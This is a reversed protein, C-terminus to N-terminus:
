SDSELPPGSAEGGDPLDNPAPAPPTEAKPQEWDIKLTAQLEVSWVRAREPDLNTSFGPVIIGTDRVFDEVMRLTESGGMPKCSVENIEHGSFEPLQCVVEVADAQSHGVAMLSVVTTRLLVKM